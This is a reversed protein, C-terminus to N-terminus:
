RFDGGFLVVKGRFIKQENGNTKMIDRLSKDLAKFYFKHAMPAEDWIILRTMKLLAALESGQHINYISNDLTPIPIKFRSHATRGGLLLLSTIGSSAVNLVFVTNHVYHLHCLKGCPHKAQKAKAMCFYMGGKNKNVVGM